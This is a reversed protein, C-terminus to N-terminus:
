DAGHLHAMVGQASLMEFVQRAAEMGQSQDLAVSAKLLPPEGGRKGVAASLTLKNDAIRAFAAIPSSCDGQLLRVLQREAEVCIATPEHHCARLLEVTTADRKRCQLSLAGQGAAPLLEEVEIPTM